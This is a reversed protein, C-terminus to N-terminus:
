WRARRTRPTASPLHPTWLGPHAAPLALLPVPPGPPQVCVCLDKPCHEQDRPLWEGFLGSSINQEGLGPETKM